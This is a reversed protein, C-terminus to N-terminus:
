RDTGERDRRYPNGNHLQPTGDSVCADYGDDYAAALLTALVGGACTGCCDWANVIRQVDNPTKSVAGHAARVYEDLTEQDRFTIRPDDVGFTIAPNDPDAPLPVMRERADALEFVNPEAAEPTEDPTM